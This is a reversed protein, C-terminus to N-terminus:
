ILVNILAQAVGRSAGLSFAKLYEDRVLQAHNVLLVHTSGARGSEDQIEQLELALGVTLSDIRGFFADINNNASASYFEATSLAAQFQALQAKITARAGHLDAAANDRGTATALGEYLWADLVGLGSRTLTGTIEEEDATGANINFTVSDGSLSVLELGGTISTFKGTRAGTNPDVQELIQSYDAEKQWLNGGSDTITYGTTLNYRDVTETDGSVDTVYSYTRQTTSGILNPNGGRDQAETNWSRLFSNFTAEYGLDSITDGNAAKFTTTLMDMSIDSIRDIRRVLDELFLVADLLDTKVDRWDNAGRNASNIRAQAQSTAVSQQQSLVRNNYRTLQDLLTASAVDRASIPSLFNFVSDV